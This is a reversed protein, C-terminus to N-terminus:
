KHTNNSIPESPKWVTYILGSAWPLACLQYPNLPYANLQSCVITAVVEPVYPAVRWPGHPSPSMLWVDQMFLYFNNGVNLVEEPTNTAYSISTEQIAVFRPEGMYSVGAHAAIARAKKSVSQKIQPRGEQPAAHIPVALGAIGLVVSAIAIMKNMTHRGWAWRLIEVNDFYNQPM